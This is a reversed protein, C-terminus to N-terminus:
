SFESFRVPMYKDIVDDNLKEIDSFRFYDRNNAAILVSNEKCFGTTLSDDVLLNILAALFIIVSNVFFIDRMYECIPSRFTPPTRGGGIVHGLM